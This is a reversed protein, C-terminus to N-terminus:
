VNLSFTKERQNEVYLAFLKKIRKVESIKTEIQIRHFCIYSSALFVIFAIKDLSFIIRKRKKFREKEGLFKEKREWFQLSLNLTERERRSKVKQPRTVSQHVLALTMPMQAKVSSLRSCARRKVLHGLYGEEGVSLLIRDACHMTILKQWIKYWAKYIQLPGNDLCVWIADFWCFLFLHVADIPFWLRFVITNQLHRCDWIFDDKM